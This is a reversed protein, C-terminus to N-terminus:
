RLGLDEALDLIDPNEALKKLAKREIQGVRGPCMPFGKDTMIEAVEAQSLLGFNRQKDSKDEKNKKVM